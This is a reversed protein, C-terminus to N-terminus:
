TIPTPTVHDKTSVLWKDKRANPYSATLYGGANENGVVGGGILVWNLSDEPEM